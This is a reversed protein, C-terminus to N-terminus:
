NRSLIKKFKYDAFESIPSNMDNGIEVILENIFFKSNSSKKIWNRLLKLSEITYSDTKKMEYFLLKAFVFNLSSMNQEHINGSNRSNIIYKDTDCLHIFDSPFMYSGGNIDRAIISNRTLQLFDDSLEQVSRVLDLKSFEGPEKYQSTGIKKASYLDDIFNMVYGSYVGDEDLIVDIPMVIRNLELTEILYNVKEFTMLNKTKRFNVDYKLIKIAIDGYKYVIGDHGAGIKELDDQKISIGSQALRYTAM